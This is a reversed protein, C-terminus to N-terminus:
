LHQAIESTYSVLYLLIPPVMVLVVFVDSIFQLTPPPLANVMLYTKGTKDICGECFHYVTTIIIVLMSFATQTFSHYVLPVTLQLNKLNNLLQQKKDSNAEQTFSINFHPEHPNQNLRKWIKKLMFAALKDDSIHFNPLRDNSGHKMPNVLTFM